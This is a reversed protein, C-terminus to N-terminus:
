PKVNRVQSVRTATYKTIYIQPGNVVTEKNKLRQEQHEISVMFAVGIGAVM